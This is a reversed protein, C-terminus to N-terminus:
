EKDINEWASPVTYLMCGARQMSDYNRNDAGFSVGGSALPNLSQFPNLWGFHDPRFFYRSGVAWSSKALLDRGM